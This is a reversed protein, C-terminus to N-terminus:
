TYPHPPPLKLKFNPFRCRHIEPVFDAIGGLRFIPFIELEVKTQSVILKADFVGDFDCNTKSWLGGLLKRMLEDYRVSEKEFDIRGRM